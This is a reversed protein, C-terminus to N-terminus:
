RSVVIIPSVRDRLLSVESRVMKDFEPTVFILTPSLSVLSIGLAMIRMTSETKDYIGTNLIISWKADNAVGKNGIIMNVFVGVPLVSM